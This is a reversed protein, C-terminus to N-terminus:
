RRKIKNKSLTMVISYVSSITILKEHLLGKSLEIRLRTEHKLPLSIKNTLLENLKNQWPFYVM